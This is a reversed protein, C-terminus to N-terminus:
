LFIALVRFSLLLVTVLVLCHNLLVPEGWFLGRWPRGFINLARAWCRIWLNHKPFLRILAALMEASTSATLPWGTLAWVMRRVSCLIPRCPQRGLLLGRRFTICLFAWLCNASSSCVLSMSQNTQHFWSLSIQNLHQSSLWTLLVFVLTDQRCDLMATPTDHNPAAHTSSASPLLLENLSGHIGVHVTVYQLLAHDGGKPSQAAPCHEMM